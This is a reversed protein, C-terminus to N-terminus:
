AALSGPTWEGLSLHGADITVYTRHRMWDGGNM